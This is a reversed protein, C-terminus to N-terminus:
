RDEWPILKGDRYVPEAAKTWHRMLAPEAKLAVDPIWKAMGAVMVRAMEPGALHALDAPLEALIEDHIFIIPRSRYLVSQRDLYCARTLARLSEKAGDAALSQFGTNCGDTLGLGGRWRQTGHAQLRGHHNTGVAKKISNIYRQLGWKAFWAPRLKNQVFDYCNKCILLPPNHGAWIREIGCHEHGGLLICFRIGPYVTGDPATTTGESKKRKAYVFKAAGLGGPLGFNAAKSADRYKKASAKTTPDKLAADMEEVTKGALTAGLATHLGGPDGTQNITDAMISNGFYNLEVQSLSCLELAAFDVSCLVYGDRAKFCEREGGYRPMLQILGDYATRGSSVLVTPKLWRGISEDELAPLYTTLTREHENDAFAVLDLDGSNLKADRDASLGQKATTPCAAIDLGTGSCKKCNILKKKQKESPVKGDICFLCAKTAGYAKAVATKIVKRDEKGNADFFGLKQFKEVFSQHAVETRARLEHVKERDTCLGWLAGLHLAFATECQNALDGLNNHPGPTPGLGGGKVQALAVALTNKVDDVPYIRATEPWQDFPLGDLLAYSKRWEDHAKADSRGLVFDVCRELSYRGKLPKNTIPHHYLNGHYIADLAQAIQVDYVRREEYAKFILPLLAPDAAVACGLDYAINAGVIITDSALWIKLQALIDTPSLLEASQETAFAGCVIKPALLGIEILYTELDFALFKSTDWAM